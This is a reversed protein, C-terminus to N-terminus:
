GSRKLPMSKTFSLTQPCLDLKNSSLFWSGIFYRSFAANHTSDSFFFSILNLVPIQTLQRGWLFPVHLSSLGSSTRHTLSVRSHQPSHLPPTGEWNASSLALSAHQVQNQHDSNVATADSACKAWPLPGRPPLLFHILRGQKSKTATHRLVM